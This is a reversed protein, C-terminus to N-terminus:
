YEVDQYIVGWPTVVVKISLDAWFDIVINLTKGVVPIFEKGDSGQTFSYLLYGKKYIELVYSENGATPFTNFLSTALKNDGVASIAPKYNVMNGSLEGNSDYTDPSERLIFSYDSLSEGAPFKRATIIVSATKRFIQIEHSRGMETSGFEVEVDHSGFFLDGPSQAVTIMNRTVQGSKLKVYLDTLQQVTNIQSYDVKSDLNAWAAFKLSKYGPFEMRIDIPKRQKVENATMTFTKFIQQNEDFVFLIVQEVDGSETIDNRDADLAKVTVQFPRPCDAVNEKLCSSLLGTLLLAVLLFCYKNTNSM